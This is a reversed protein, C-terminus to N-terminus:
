SSSSRTEVFAVRVFLYSFRPDINVFILAERKNEMFLFPIGTVPFAEKWDRADWEQEERQTDAALLPFL